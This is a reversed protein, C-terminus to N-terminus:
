RLRFNISHPGVPEDIDATTHASSVHADGQASYVSSNVYATSAPSISLFTSLGRRPRTFTPTTRFAASLTLATLLTYKSLVPVHPDCGVDSSESRMNQAPSADRDARPYPASQAQTAQRNQRRTSGRDPGTSSPIQPGSTSQPLSSDQLPPQYPTYATHTAQPQHVYPSTYQAAYGNTPPIHVGSYMRPYDAPAPHPHQPQYHPWSPPPIPNALHPQYPPNPYTYQYSTQQYQSNSDM